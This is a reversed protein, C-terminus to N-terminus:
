EESTLPEWNEADPHKGVIGTHDTLAQEIIKQLIDGAVEQLLPNDVTLTSDPSAEIFFNFSMVGEERENFAIQGYRLVTENFVGKLIRVCWYQDDGDAPILQYTSNEKHEMKMILRTLM